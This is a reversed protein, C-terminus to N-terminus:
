EGYYRREAASGGIGAAILGLVLSIFGGWAAGVNSVGQIAPGVMPTGTIAMRTVDSGVFGARNTLVTLGTGFLILILPLALSWVAVGHLMRYQRDTAAALHSALWGGFFFAIISSIVSWVGAGFGYTGTGRFAPVGCAYAFVSSLILLSVTLLSGSIVSGWSVHSRIMVPAQREVAAAEEPTIFGRTTTGPATPQPNQPSVM